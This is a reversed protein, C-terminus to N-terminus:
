AGATVRRQRAPTKMVPWSNIEMQLIRRGPHTEPAEPGQTAALLYRSGQGDPHCNLKLFDELTGDQRHHQLLNGLLFRLRGRARETTNGFATLGLGPIRAAVEGRPRQRFVCQATVMIPQQM